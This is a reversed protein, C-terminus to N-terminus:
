GLPLHEGYEEKKIFVPVSGNPMGLYNFGTKGVRKTKWGLGKYSKETEPIFETQPGDYQKGDIVIGPGPSQAINAIWMEGEKLEPHTENVSIEERRICEPCTAYKKGDRDVWKGRADPKSRLAERLGCMPYSGHAVIHVPPKQRGAKLSTKKM